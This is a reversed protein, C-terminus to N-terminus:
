LNRVIRAALEDRLATPDPLDSALMQLSISNETPLRDVPVNLNLGVGFVVAVREGCDPIPVMEALIGGLKRGGVV